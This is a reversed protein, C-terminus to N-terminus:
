FSKMYRLANICEKFSAKFYIIILLHAIQAILLGSGGDGFSCLLGCAVERRGLADRLLQRAFAVGNAGDCIGRGDISTMM